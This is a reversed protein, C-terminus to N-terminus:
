ETQTCTKAALDRIRGLQNLLKPNNSLSRRIKQIGHIVTSHDRGGLLFGIKKLHLSIDIRLLYMAVHRADAVPKRRTRSSLEQVPLHYYIAVAELIARTVVESGELEEKPQFSTDTQM